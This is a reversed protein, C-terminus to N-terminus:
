NEVVGLITPDEVGDDDYGVPADEVTLELSVDALELLGEADDLIDVGGGALEFLRQLVSLRDDDGGELLKGDDCVLDLLKRSM